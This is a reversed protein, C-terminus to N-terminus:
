KRHLRRTVWLRQALPVEPDLIEELLQRLEQPAEEAQGTLARKSGSLRDHGAM